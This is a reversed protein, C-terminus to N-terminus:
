GIFFLIILTVFLMSLSLLYLSGFKPKHRILQVILIIPLIVLMLLMPISIIEYFIGTAKFRNVDILQVFLWFLCTGLSLWLLLKETKTSSATM